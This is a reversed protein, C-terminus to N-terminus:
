SSINAHKPSVSYEHMGKNLYFKGWNNTTVAKKSSLDFEIESPHCHKLDEEFLEEITKNHRYHERKADEECM